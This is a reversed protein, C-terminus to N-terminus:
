FFLGAHDPEPEDTVGLALDQEISSCCMSWFTYLYTTNVELLISKSMAKGVICMKEVYCSSMMVTAFQLLFVIFINTVVM